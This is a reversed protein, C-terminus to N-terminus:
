QLERRLDSVLTGNPPGRKRLAPVPMMREKPALRRGGAKAILDSVRVTGLGRAYRMFLEKVKNGDRSSLYKIQSPGIEVGGNWKVGERSKTM